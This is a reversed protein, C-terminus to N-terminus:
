KRLSLCMLDKMSCTVQIMCMQTAKWVFRATDRVRYAGSRPAMQQVTNCQQKPLEPMLKGPSRSRKSRSVPARIACPTPLSRGLKVKSRPPVPSQRHYPDEHKMVKGFKFNTPRGTRFIHRMKPRLMIRGPSRSRQGKFKFITGKIIRPIPLRGVLRLIEAIKWYRSRPWCRQSAGRSITVKVKSRTPRPARRHYTHEHEVQMGHKFNTPKGARFIHWVKPSLM